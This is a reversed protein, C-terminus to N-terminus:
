YRGRLVTRDRQDDWRSPDQRTRGNNRDLNDYAPTFGGTVGATGLPDYGMCAKPGPAGYLNAVMEVVARELISRVALQVPELGGKGLSVDIVNSGFFQFYGAGIQRGIIQKQYSVGDVVEETKTNVLRLDMAVNMAYQQGTIEGTGESANQAGMALDLGGSRINYNLETIGGVLYFDSGPMQGELIKRHPGSPGMPGGGPQDTILKQNAYKLEMEAVSTDYREVVPVGAKMLASIAM